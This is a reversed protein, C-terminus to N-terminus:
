PNYPKIGQGFGPQGGPVTHLQYHFHTGPDSPSMQKHYEPSNDEEQGYGNPFCQKRCREADPRSVGPNNARNIDCAEGRPHPGNPHKPSPPRRGSTVVTEGHTCNDFCVLADKLDPKINCDVGAACHWLGWPDIFVAPGNAVYDYFNTGGEFDVPDESFFRGTQPDYYRARYHHPEATARWAV